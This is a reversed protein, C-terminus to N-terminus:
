GDSKTMLTTIIISLDSIARGFADGKHVLFRYNFLPTGNNAMFTKVANSDIAYWVNIYVPVGAKQIGDALKSFINAYDSSSVTDIVGSFDDYIWNIFVGQVEEFEGPFRADSPVISTVKTTKSSNTNTGVNTNIKKKSSNDASAPKRKYAKLYREHRQEPTLKRLEDYAAKKQAPTPETRQQQATTSLAAFSLTAAVLLRKHIKSM